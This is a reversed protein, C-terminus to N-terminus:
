RKVRGRIGLVALGLLAPETLRSLMETYTGATTLDQGSSRFIVSNVVVRLSREFRKSSLRDLYPEDPNVPAPTGSTMTISRGTLTGTSTSKGEGQPLGWLMMAMLTVTMAVLLWGLARAARLGYGSLAWYLTLLSRESWPIDDAHRRMEMEGYYFDAAGPEHKADEFAKRLQRYVPALAAPVLVEETEPAPTWGEAGAQRTARWHHEEALTRRPTWRVPWVGRRRVGSPSTALRYRGELRLQDLHITGAFRCDSLDIDTLVLHAADVGRLTLVRVHPSSLSLEPLVEGDATFPRSRAAISVPHELVADSLDVTANRLRLAATSMWRTRRCHVADAAVEITVAAGFLAESLDLTGTCVLPGVTAVHEFTVKLFSVDGHFEARRFWTDGRFEAGGFWAGGRFKAGFFSAEANFKVGGFVATDAMDTRVFWAGGDFTAREFSARGGVRAGEFLAEGRFEVGNFQANGEIDAGTFWARGGFRVGDFVADGSFTAEQFLAEGLHPRGTVSDTFATLLESLLEGTFPTGRHDVDAGPSLTALYSARNPHTLHALCVTHGFVQVGRCGVPGTGRAVSHGCHPWNPLPPPAEPSPRTM